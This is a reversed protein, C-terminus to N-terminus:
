FDKVLPSNGEPLLPFQVFFRSQAQCGRKERCLAPTNPSVRHPNSQGQLEFDVSFWLNEFCHKQKSVGAVVDGFVGDSIPGEAAKSQMLSEVVPHPTLKRKGGLVDTRGEAGNSRCIALGSLLLTNELRKEQRECPLVVSHLIVNNGNGGSCPSDSQTHLDRVVVALAESGAIPSLLFRGQTEVPFSTQINVDSILTFYLRGLGFLKDTNVEADLFSQHRTVAMDGSASFFSFSSIPVKPKHPRQLRFARLRGPTVQPRKRTSPCPKLSAVGVSKGLPENLTKLTWRKDHHLPQRVNPFSRLRKALPVSATQMSPVKCAQLRKNLVFREECSVTNDINVGGIRRLRARPAPVNLVGVSAVRQEAAFATPELKVSVQVCASVKSLPTFGQQTPQRDVLRDYHTTRV